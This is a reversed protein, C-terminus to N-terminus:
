AGAGAGVPDPGHHDSAEACSPDVIVIRPNKRSASSHIHLKEIVAKTLRRGRRLLVAGDVSVVDEYLVMGDELKDLPVVVPRHAGLTELSCLADTVVSPLDPLALRLEAVAAECNLGAGTLLTWQTSARLLTAGVTYHPQGYRPLVLQGTTGRQLRLIKVVGGLRPIREILRATTEAIENLLERDSPDAANISQFRVQDDDPRLALGLLGIRAALRYEWNGQIGLAHECKSMVWDIRQSQQLVDPRLTELVDTLVTVAGVFTHQLLERESNILDFQRLAADIATRIDSVECPKNLFRFVSGDNVARIATDVDQNGTLMVFVTHPTHKRAERIFQIGDMRPMKMDTMIVPFMQSDGIVDLADPGSEALTLDYTCGLNRRLMRLLSVDDDVIM